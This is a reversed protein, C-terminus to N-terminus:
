VRAHLEVCPGEPMTWTVDDCTPIQEALAEPDSAHADHIPGFLGAQVARDGHLQQAGLELGVQVRPPSKMVLRQGATAEMM